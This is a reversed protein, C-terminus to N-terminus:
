ARLGRAFVLWELTLLAVVAMVLERWVPRGARTESASGSVRSPAPLSM